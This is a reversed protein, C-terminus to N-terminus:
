HQAWGVLRLPGSCSRAPRRGPVTVRTEVREDSMPLVRVGVDWARAVEATVESLTAQEALRQTRYLHTALDRDGLRFWSQGASSEPPAVCPYRGLADMM